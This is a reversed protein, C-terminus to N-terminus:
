EASLHLAAESTAGELETWGLAACVWATGEVVVIDGVSLSRPLTCESNLDRQCITFLTELDEAVIAGTRQYLGAEQAAEVSGGLMLDSAITGIAPGYIDPLRFQLITFLTTSCM